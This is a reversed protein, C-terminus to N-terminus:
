NTLLCSSWVILKISRGDEIQSKRKRKRALNYTSASSKGTSEQYGPSYSHGLFLPLSLNRDARWLLAQRSQMYTASLSMITMKMMMMMMTTMMMM